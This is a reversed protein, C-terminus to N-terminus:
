RPSDSFIQLPTPELLLLVNGPPPTSTYLLGVVLGAAVALVGGTLLGGWGPQLPRMLLNALPSRPKTRWSNLAPDPAAIRAAVRARLRALAAGAEGPPWNRSDQAEGARAIADDLDQADELAARAAASHTLLDLADQRTLTPWREIRGGYSDVLVKFQDLTMM